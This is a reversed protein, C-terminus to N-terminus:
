GNNPNPKVENGTLVHAGEALAASTRICVNGFADSNFSGVSAGDIFIQYTAASGDGSLVFSPTASNSATKDSGLQLNQGCYGYDLQTSNLPAASGVAPVLLLLFVALLSLAISVAFRGRHARLKSVFRPM